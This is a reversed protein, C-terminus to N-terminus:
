WIPKLRLWLLHMIVMCVRCVWFDPISTPIASVGMMSCGIPSDILEAFDMVERGANSSIVGGGCYIYPKNSAAIMEAAKKIIESDAKPSEFAPAVVANEFDCAAIQVDKPVDVLVPGPRGSKAIRFAERITDALETVDKVIYNHKTIPLTM